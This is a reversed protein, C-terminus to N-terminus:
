ETYRSLTNFNECLDLAHPHDGQNLQLPVAGLQLQYYPYIASVIFAM